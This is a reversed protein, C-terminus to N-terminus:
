MYTFDPLNLYIQHTFSWCIWRFLQAWAKGSCLSRCSPPKRIAFNKKRLSNAALLVGANKGPEGSSESNSRLRRPFPYGVEEFHWFAVYSYQKQCPREASAWIFFCRELLPLASLASCHLFCFSGYEWLLERIQGCKSAFHYQSLSQLTEYIKGFVVVILPANRWHTPPSIRLCACLVM